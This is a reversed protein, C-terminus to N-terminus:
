CSVRFASGSFSDKPSRNPAWPGDAEPRPTPVDNQDMLDSILPGLLLGKACVFHLKQLSCLSKERQGATESGSARYNGKAEARLEGGPGAAEAGAGRM